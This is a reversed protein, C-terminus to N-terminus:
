SARRRRFTRRISKAALQVSGAIAQSVSARSTQQQRANVLSQFLELYRASMRDADYGYELVARRRQAYQAPFQQLVREFTIPTFECGYGACYEPTGGSRLYLVPLGCQMAEIYHNGGPEFRAGTIHAHHTRLEDALEAGELVPLVRSNPLALGLPVRGIHTFEFQGAYPETALLADLREYIDYGKMIGTSWHHTVLRFRTGRRYEAGGQPHFLRGDAGTPIVSLAGSEPLGQATFLGRMFQSVFVTHDAEEAVRRVQRNIGVDAGRQEDCTNVRLVLSCRPYVRRYARAEAPAYSSIRLQPQVAVLLILDLNPVLRRYVQHGCTTLYRELNAVFRNGGGWPGEIRAANISIKM